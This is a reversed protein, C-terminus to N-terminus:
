LLSQNFEHTQIAEDVTSFFELQGNHLVGGVDCFEKLLNNSHSILIVTSRKRRDGLMIRCKRKFASDGVAIVEDILYYDFDIAMSVGFALRAKMGSSYSQIPMDIYKGLQAFDEVFDFVERPDRRYIRSIFLVNERASLSGHFGGSFGLPWSVSGQRSISGSDPPEGGSFLRILTSKGAGNKGLIGTNVGQPFTGSFNNLISKRGGNYPYSKSVKNFVIM